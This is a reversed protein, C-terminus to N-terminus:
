RRKRFITNMLIIGMGCALILYQWKANGANYTHMFHMFSLFILLLGGLVAFFQLRKPNMM